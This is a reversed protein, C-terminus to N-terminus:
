THTKKAPNLPTQKPIGLTLCAGKTINPDLEKRNNLMLSSKIGTQESLLALRKRTNQLGFRKEGPIHEPLGSGNDCITAILSDGEEVFRIEISPNETLGDGFGHIVANEVAPLCIMCPLLTLPSAESQILYSFDPGLQIRNLELYRKLLDIEDKLSHSAGEKLQLIHRLFASYDHVLNMAVTANHKVLSHQIRNMVNAMTHTNLRYALSLSEQERQAGRVEKVEELLRDRMMVAHHLKLMDGAAFTIFELSLAPLLFRAAFPKYNLIFYTSHLKTTFTLIAALILVAAGLMFIHVYLPLSANRLRLRVILLLLGFSLLSVLTSMAYGDLTYDIALAVLAVWPLYRWLRHILKSSPPDYIHLDLGLCILRSYLFLCGLALLNTIIYFNGANWSGTKYHGFILVGSIILVNLLLRAGSSPIRFSLYYVLSIITMM